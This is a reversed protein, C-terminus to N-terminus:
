HLERALNRSANEQATLLSGTLEQLRSRYDQLVRENEKMETIDIASGIYGAFIGNGEFRPVGRCMLVRYEGDARRLRYEIRCESQEAFCSALSAVCYGTDDPHVNAIWGAGLDQEMAHGTFDLWVRNFFTAQQNADSTFIMVPANDALNHFRQE